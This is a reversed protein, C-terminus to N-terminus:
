SVRKTPDDDRVPISRRGTEALPDFDGYVNHVAPETALPQLDFDETLLAYAGVPAVGTRIRRGCLREFVGNEGPRTLQTM